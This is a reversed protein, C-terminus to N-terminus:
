LSVKGEPLTEGERDSTRPLSDEDATDVFGDIDAGLSVFASFLAWRNEVTGELLSGMAAHAAGSDHPTSPSARGSSSALLSSQDPPASSRSGVSDGPEGGAGSVAIKSGEGLASCSFAEEM